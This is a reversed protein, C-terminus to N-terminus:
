IHGSPVLTSTTSGLSVFGEQSFQSSAQKVPLDIGLPGPVEPYSPSELFSSYMWAWLYQLPFRHSLEQVPKRFM